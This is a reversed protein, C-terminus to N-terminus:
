GSVDQFNGGSKWDGEVQPDKYQLMQYKMNHVFISVRGTERVFMNVLSIPVYLYKQLDYPNFNYRQDFQLFDVHCDHLYYTEISKINNRLQASVKDFRQFGNVVSDPSYIITQETPKFSKTNSSSKIINTSEATSYSGQSIQTSLQPIEKEGTAKRFGFEMNRCKVTLSPKEQYLINFRDAIPQCSIHMNAIAIDTDKTDYLNKTSFQNIDGLNITYAMIDTQGQDDFRFDDFFYYGYTHWAKYQLILNSPVMLDNNTRALIQEYRHTNKEYDEGLKKFTFTKDGHASKIHEEFKSLADLVTIDELIANFGNTLSLYYLVPNVLYLISLTYPSVDKPPEYAEAHIIIYQKAGVEDVKPPEPDGAMTQNLVIDIAVKILEFENNRCKEELTLFYKTRLNIAIIAFSATKVLPCRFVSFATVDDFKEDFMEATIRYRMPYKSKVGGENDAM